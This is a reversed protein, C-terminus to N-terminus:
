QEIDELRMLLEKAQKPRLWLWRWDKKNTSKVWFGVKLITGTDLPSRIFISESMIRHKENSYPPMCAQCYSTKRNIKRKFRYELSTAVRCNACFCPRLLITALFMALLLYFLFYTIMELIM